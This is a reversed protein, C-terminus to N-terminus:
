WAAATPSRGFPLRSLLPQPRAPLNSPVSAPRSCGETAEAAACAMHHTGWCRRELPRPQPCRRAPAPTTGQKSPAAWRRNMLRFRSLGEENRQLHSALSSQQVVSCVTSGRRCAQFHSVVTPTPLLRARQARQTCATSCCCDQKNTISDQKHHQALIPLNPIPWSCLPQTHTRRGTSRGLGACRTPPCGGVAAGSRSLRHTFRSLGEQTTHPCTHM